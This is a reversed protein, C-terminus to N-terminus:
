EKDGDGQRFVHGGLRFYYYRVICRRGRDTDLYSTRLAVQWRTVTYHTSIAWSPWKLKTMKVRWCDRSWRSNSAQPLYGPLVAHVIVNIIRYVRVSRHQQFQQLSCSIPLIRPYLYCCVTYFIVDDRRSKIIKMFQRPSCRLISTKGSHVTTVHNITFAM